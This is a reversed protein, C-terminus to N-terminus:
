MLTGKLDGLYYPVRISLVRVRVPVRIYLVVQKCDPEGATHKTTGKPATTGKM